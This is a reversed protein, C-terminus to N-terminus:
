SSSTQMTVLAGHTSSRSSRCVSLIDTQRASPLAGEYYSLDTDKFTCFVDEESIFAPGKSYNTKFRQAPDNVYLGYYNNYRITDAPSTDWIPWRPFTPNQFDLGDTSNFDTSFYTRYKNVGADTTTNVEDGDEITGPVMWSLGSNPNYTIMVRKRLSDSGPPRKRAGFWAGGAFIYQNRRGRPWFTGGVGNRVDFGFIGYNTIQFDINSVVNRQQDFVGRPTRQVSEGGKDKSKPTTGATGAQATVTVMALMTAVAICLMWRQNMVDGTNQKMNM